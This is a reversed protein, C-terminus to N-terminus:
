LFGAVTKKNKKKDKGKAKKSKESKDGAKADPTVSTSQAEDSGVKSTKIIKDYYGGISKDAKSSLSKSKKLIPSIGEPVEVKKKGSASFHGAVTSSLQPSKDSKKALVKDILNERGKPANGGQKKPTKSLYNTILSPSSKAEAPPQKKNPTSPKKIKEVSGQSKDNRIENGNNKEVKKVPVTEKKEDDSESDSDSSSSSEIIRKVPSKKKDYDSDEEYSSEDKGNNVIGNEKSKDEKKPAEDESESESSSQFVANKYKKAHAQDAKKPTDGGSKAAVMKLPSTKKAVPEDDEEESSSASSSSSSEDAKSKSTVSTSKPSVGVPKSATKKLPTKKKEVPRDEEVEDSSSDSSSSNEDAKKKSTVFTPQPESVAKKVVSVEKADSIEHEDESSSSSSDSSSEEVDDAKNQSLASLSSKKTPVVKKTESIAKIGPNTNQSDPQNSSNQKKDKGANQKPPIKVAEEEFASDSGSEEGSEKIASSTTEAEKNLKTRNEEGVDGDSSEQDRKCEVKSSENGVELKDGMNTKWELYDPNKKVFDWCAKYTKYIEGNPAEIKKSRSNRATKDKFGEPIANRKKKDPVKSDETVSTSSSSDSSAPRKKDVDMSADTTMSTSKSKNVDKEGEKKPSAVENSHESESSRSKPRPLIKASTKKSSSDVAKESDTPNKSMLVKPHPDTDNTANQINSVPRSQSAPLAAEESIGSTSSKNMDLPNDAPFSGKSKKKVPSGHHSSSEEENHKRKKSSTQSNDVSSITSMGDQSVAETALPEHDVDEENDIEEDLNIVDKVISGNHRIVGIVVPNTNAMQSVVQLEVLVVDSRGVSDWAAGPRYVTVPFHGQALCNIRDQSRDRVTCRLLSGVCPSFLFFKAKVKLTVVEDSDGLSWNFNVKEYKVNTYGLLIGGIDPSYQNLNQNLLQILNEKINIETSVSLVITVRKIVSKIGSNPEKSIASLSWYDMM